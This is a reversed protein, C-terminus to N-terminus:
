ELNGLPLDCDLKSRNRRMGITCTACTRPKCVAFDPLPVCAMLCFLSVVDRMSKSFVFVQFRKEPFSCPPTDPPEVISRTMCM